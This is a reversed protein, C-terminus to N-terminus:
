KSRVGFLRSSYFEAYSSSTPTTRQFQGEHRFSERAAFHGDRDKRRGEDRGKRRGRRHECGVPAGTDGGRQGSVM